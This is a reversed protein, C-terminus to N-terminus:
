PAPKYVMTARQADLYAYLLDQLAPYESPDFIDRAIVLKRTVTITKGSAMYTVALEGATNSLDVNSPVWEGVAGDPLTIVHTWSYNKAGIMLPFHRVGDPSIFTRMSGFPVPDIGFPVTMYISPSALVVGHPSTWHSQFTLGQSLDRPDSSGIGGYGGEPSLLLLQAAVSAAGEQFMAQRLPTDIRPSVEGKGTGRILGAMDVTIEADFGYQNQDPTSVPTNRVEGKESIVVVMKGSLTMDLAGFAAFPNTPNAYVDLDPLYVMMHNFAASSWLPLPRMQNSWNVLVLESRIGVAALLAQMLISHGKCDSYGNALVTTPDPPVFDDSPKLFVAVYRIRQAVWDHIARAAEAGTKGAVISKALMAIEPTPAGKAAAQRYVLAGMEEYGSLASIVFAPGVDAPSVMNPEPHPATGRQISLSITRTTGDNTDTVQFDSDRQRYTLPLSMPAEITADLRVRGELGLVYSVDFGFFPRAKVTHVWKSHVVSGVQLGPFEVTTTQTGTFGPDQAPSASPRTFVASSPVDAKSGDPAIVWAEILELTEDTPDFEQSATGAEALIQADSIHAEMTRTLVYSQDAAVVFHDQQTVVLSSQPQAAAQASLGGLLLLAGLFARVSRSWEARAAVVGGM